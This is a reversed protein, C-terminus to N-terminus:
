AAGPIIIPKEIGIILWLSLVGSPQPFLSAVVIYHVREDDNNLMEKFVEWDFLYERIKDPSTTCFHLPYGKIEMGRKVPCSEHFQHDLAEAQTVIKTWERQQNAAYRKGIPGKMDPSSEYHEAREPLDLYTQRTAFDSDCCDPDLMSKDELLKLRDMLMRILDDNTDFYTDLGNKARFMSISEKLEIVLDDAMRDCQHQKIAGGLSVDKDLPVLKAEGTLLPKWQWPVSFDYFICGPNENQLNGFLNKENFVYDITSYPIHVLTDPQVLRKDPAIALRERRRMMKALMAARGKSNHGEEEVAKKKPARAAGLQPLEMIESERLWTTPVESELMIKSKSAPLEEVDDPEEQDDDAHWTEVEPWNYRQPLHYRTATCTEWFTVSLKDDPRDNKSERTLVWAHERKQKDAGIVIGKAVYADVKMALLVCVLLVVHDQPSGIRANLLYRPSRWQPIRLRRRQKTTVEFPICRIWHLLKQPASMEEPVVIPCLFAPLAQLSRNQPHKGSEEFSFDRQTENGGLADPFFLRYKEKFDKQMYKAYVDIEKQMAGGSEGDARRECQVSKEFDPWFYVEFHILPAGTTKIDSGVLQEKIGEYIRVREEKEVGKGKPVLNEEDDDDDSKKVKSPGLLTRTVVQKTDLLENLDVESAGLFDCSAEDEDWVEIRLVGKSQLELPLLSERYSKKKEVGWDFFRVPFYFTTNFVPRLTRKMTQSTVVMGDWTLKVLPDSTGEELDAVPLNECKNIRVCLYKQRGKPASKNKLILQSAMSGMRVQEPRRKVDPEDKPVTQSRTICTINGVLEGVIFKKKDKVLAKVTGKFVSVDLISTMGFVASGFLGAPANKAAINNMTKYIKIFFCANELATKTGRFVFQAGVGKGPHPWFFKNPDTEDSEDWVTTVSKIKGTERSPVQINLKMVQKQFKEFEPESQLKYTWNDFSLQFDYIEALEIGASFRMVDYPRLKKETEKRTMKKKIMWEAAQSSNAVDWLSKTRQGFHQNFTWKSVRWINVTIGHNEWDKYTTTFKLGVFVNEPTDLFNDALPTGGKDLMYLTSYQQMPKSSVLKSARGKKLHGYTVEFFFKLKQDSVNSFSKIAMTCKYARKRDKAPQLTPDAGMLGGLNPLPLPFSFGKKKKKKAADAGEDGGQSVVVDVDEPKAEGDEMGQQAPTGEELNVPNYGAEKKARVDARKQYLMFYVFALYFNYLALFLISGQIIFFSFGYEDRLAASEPGNLDVLAFYGLATAVLVYCIFNLLPIFDGECMVCGCCLCCYPERNHEYWHKLSWIYTAVIDALVILVLGVSGTGQAIILASFFVFFFVSYVQYVAHHLVNCKNIAVLPDKSVSGPGSLGCKFKIVNKLFGYEDKIVRPIEKFCNCCGCAFDGPQATKVFQM